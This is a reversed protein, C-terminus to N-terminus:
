LLYCLAATPVRLLPVSGAKEVRGFDNPSKTALLCLAEGGKRCAAVISNQASHESDNRYKVECLIRRGNRLEVAIDIENKKFSHKNEHQFEGLKRVRIRRNEGNMEDKKVIFEFM